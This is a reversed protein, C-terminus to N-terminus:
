CDGQRKKSGGTYYVQYSSVDLSDLLEWTVNVSAEGVVRVHVGQVQGAINFYNLARQVLSVLLMLDMSLWVM